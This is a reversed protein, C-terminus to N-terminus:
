VKIQADIQRQQKKLFLRRSLKTKPKVRYIKGHTNQYFRKGKAKLKTKKKL